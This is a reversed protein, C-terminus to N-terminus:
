HAQQAAPEARGANFWQKPLKRSEPYIEDLTAADYLRGNKMVESIALANRIDALPDRDLVVM